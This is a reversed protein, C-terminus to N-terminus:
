QRVIASSVRFKRRPMSSLTPQPVRVFTVSFLSCVPLTSVLLSQCAVLREHALKGPRSDQWTELRNPGVGLPRGDGLFRTDEVAIM